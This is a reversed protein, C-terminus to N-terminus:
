IGCVGNVCSNENGYETYEVGVGNKAELYPVANLPQGGRSGDPYTTIGRLGPLYQMLMNGFREVTRENNFETGWAPLNITSSIGHDVYQQVFHQFQVRREVDNALSYADEIADPHVGKDIIRQATADVVYQYHWTTGKLYRRKFAVCFLPEIGASTEAIISLTGTPAIARTKVPRSVGLADAYRHAISTSMAYVELWKALENDAGYRKGRVLLWEHIGMLGLGLRRNKERTIEVEDYPLKSYLTGCLLFLTALDVLEAFEEITEVAALNISGINCIDNDDSSTLECCANRLHEGANKGIDVSFGPESTKLMRKVVKWYVDKAHTHIPNDVNHYADFFADDLIVSINTGDMPAPYNFDKEKLARVEPIWDKLTIFEMVDAHSWHLGAWLASRRSGGQQIHRGIENIMQMLAIPGTAEGGMGKIKSGRPRIKSYVVGIGAGTSLGEVVRRTLGAWSQRTDEVSMLLCNQTQNYPRGAAYLYRGGPIFKKEKIAKYIAQYKSPYLKGVVEWAVRRAVDDWCTEGLEKNLYKHVLITDSFTSLCM